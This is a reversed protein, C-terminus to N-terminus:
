IISDALTVNVPLFSPYLLNLYKLFQYLRVRVVLLMEDAQLAMELMLPM